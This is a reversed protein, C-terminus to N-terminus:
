EKGRKIIKIIGFHILWAIMDAQNDWGCVISFTGDENEREELIKGSNWLENRLPRSLM